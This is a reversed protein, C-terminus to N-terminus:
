WVPFLFLGSSHTPLDSFSPLANDAGAWYACFESRKNLKGEGKPFYMLPPPRPLFRM